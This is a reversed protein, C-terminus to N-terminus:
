RLLQYLGEIQYHEDRSRLNGYLSGARKQICHIHM